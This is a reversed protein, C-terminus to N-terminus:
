VFCCVSTLPKLWLLRLFWTGPNATGAQTSILVSQESELSSEQIEVGVTLYGDTENVTLSSSVLGVGLM